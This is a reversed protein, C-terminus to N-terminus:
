QHTPPPPFAVGVASLTTMRLPETEKSLSNSCASSREGTVKGAPAAKMVTATIAVTPIMLRFRVMLAATQLGSPWLLEVRLLLKSSSEEGALRTTRPLSWLLLYTSPDSPCGVAGTHYYHDGVHICVRVCVRVCVCVCVCVCVGSCRQTAGTHIYQKALSHGLKVSMSGGGGGGYCEHERRRGRWLM